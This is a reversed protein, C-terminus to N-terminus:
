EFSEYQLRGTIGLEGAAERAAKILPGPGCVYFLADAPAARMVSQLDVRKGGEARTFHLHLRDALEIALQDRYAMDAPTRGSYHLEFSSGRAKLAHAMSLLPTIGIGGAVLVAHRDDEHLPFQNAPLGLALKKVHDIAHVVATELKRRYGPAARIRPDTPGIAREVAAEVLSAPPGGGKVPASGFISPVLTFHHDALLVCSRHDNSM